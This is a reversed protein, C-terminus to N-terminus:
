HRHGRESPTSEFACNFRYLKMCFKYWVRFVDYVGILMCYKKVLTIFEKGSKFLVIQINLKIGEKRTTEYDVTYGFEALYKKMIKNIIKQEEIKLTKKYRYIRKNDISEDIVNKFSSLGGLNTHLMMEEYPVQLFKCIKEIQLNPSKVLEEYYIRMYKNKDLKMEVKKTQKMYHNWTLAAGKLSFGLKPHVMSAVSARGDRIINIIKAEPFKSILLDLYDIYPPNKDGIYYKKENNNEYSYYTTAFTIMLSFYLDLYSKGKIEDFTKIWNDLSIRNWEKKILKREELYEKLKVKARKGKIHGILIRNGFVRELYTSEGLIIKLNENASLTRALMSTGSRPCGIIFLPGKIRVRHNVSM